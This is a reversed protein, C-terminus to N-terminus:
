RETQGGAIPSPPYARPNTPRPHDRGIKGPIKWNAIDGNQDVEMLWWQFTYPMLVDDYLSIKEATTAFLDATKEEPVSQAAGRESTESESETDKEDLTDEELSYGGGINAWMLTELEDEKPTPLENETTEASLEDEEAMASVTEANSTEPVARIEAERSEEKEPDGVTEPEPKEAVAENPATEMSSAEESAMPPVSEADANAADPGHVYEQLWHSSPALLVAKKSIPDAHGELSKKRALAFHLPQAYPYKSLLHEFDAFSPVTPDAIAQHFLAATSTNMFETDNM